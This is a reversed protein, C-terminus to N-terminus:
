RDANGAKFYIGLDKTVSIVSIPRSNIKEGTGVKFVIYCFLDIKPLSFNHFLEIPVLSIMPFM